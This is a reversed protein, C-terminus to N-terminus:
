ISPLPNLAGGGARSGSAQRTTEAFASVWVGHAEYLVRLLVPGPEAPRLGAIRGLAALVAAIVARGGHLQLEAV